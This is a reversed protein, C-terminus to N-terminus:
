VHLVMQHPTTENKILMGAVSQDWKEQIELSSAKALRLHHKTTEWEKNQKRKVEELECEIIV